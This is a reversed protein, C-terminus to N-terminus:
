HVKLEMSGEEGTAAILRGLSLLPPCSLRNEYSILGFRSPDERPHVRVDSGGMRGISTFIFYKPYIEPARLDSAAKIFNRDSDWIVDGFPSLIVLGNSRAVFLRDGGAAIRPDGAAKTNLPAPSLEADSLSLRWLNNEGVLFVTESEESYAPNAAPQLYEPAKKSQLSNDRSNYLFLQSETCFFICDNAVTLPPRCFGKFTAVEQDPFRLLRSTRDAEDHELFYLEDGCFLASHYIIRSPKSVRCLETEAANLDLLNLQYIGQSTTILLQEDDASSKPTVGRVARGGPSNFSKLPDNLSHTDFILVGKDSVVFLFGLHSKM